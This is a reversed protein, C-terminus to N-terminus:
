YYIIMKKSLILYSFINYSFYENKHMELLKNQRNQRYTKYFVKNESSSLFLLKMITTITKVIIIAEIINKNIAILANKNGDKFILLILNSVYQTIANIPAIINSILLRDGMSLTISEKNELLSTLGILINIKNKEIVIIDM